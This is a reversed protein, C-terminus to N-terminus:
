KHESGKIPAEVQAKFFYFGLSQPLLEALVDFSDDCGALIPNKSHVGFVKFDTL